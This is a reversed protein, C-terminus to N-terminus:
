GYGNGGAGVGFPDITVMSRECSRECRMECLREAASRVAATLRDAMGADSWGAASGAATLAM